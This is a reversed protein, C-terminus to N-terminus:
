VERQKRNFFSLASTNQYNVKRSISKNRNKKKSRNYENPRKFADVGRFVNFLLTRTQELDDRLAVLDNRKPQLLTVAEQYWRSQGTLKKKSVVGDFYDDYSKKLKEIDEEMLEIKKTVNALKDRTYSQDVSLLNQKEKM